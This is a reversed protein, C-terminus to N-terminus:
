NNFPVPNWEAPAVFGKGALGKPANDGSIELLAKQLRMADAESVKNMDLVVSCLPFKDTEGIIRFDDASAIDVACSATLAYNSIIAVDAKNDLLEGICEICGSKNTIASPVIGEKKLMALPAHYKEYSDEQGAVLTRGSIESLSTIPSDKKVIFIGTLWPNNEPDLLDAVRQFKFDNQPVLRMAFWPKCLVGDYRGTLLSDQIYMEEILYTLQLDIDYRTRLIEQLEDYERCALDGICACATKKGYTDNVALKIVLTKPSNNCAAFLLLAFFGFLIKKM